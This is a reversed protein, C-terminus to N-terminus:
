GDEREVTVNNLGNKEFEDMYEQMRQTLESNGGSEGPGMALDRRALEEALIDFFIGDEYDLIAEQIGGEEFGASPVVEGDVMEFLSYMGTKLCYSFCKSEVDDYAQIRNEGRMSNMVWNGVYVLDLLRRFEKETLELTM